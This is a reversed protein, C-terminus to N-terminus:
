FRLRLIIKLVLGEQGGRYLGRGGSLLGLQFFRQAFIIGPIIIPIERYLYRIKVQYGLM